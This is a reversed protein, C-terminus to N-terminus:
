KMICLSSGRLTFLVSGVGVFGAMVSIGVNKDFSFIGAMLSLVVGSFGVIVIRYTKSKFQGEFERKAELDERYESLEELEIVKMSTM